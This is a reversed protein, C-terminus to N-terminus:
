NGASVDSAHANANGLICWLVVGMPLEKSDFSILPVVLSFNPMHNVLFRTLMILCQPHPMPHPKAMVVGM